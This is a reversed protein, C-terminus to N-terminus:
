AKGSSWAIDMYRGMAEAVVEVCEELLDTFPVKNVRTELHSYYNVLIDRNVNLKTIGARILKQTLSEPFRNFGHFAVLVGGATTM